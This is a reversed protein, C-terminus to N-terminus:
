LLWSTMVGGRVSTLSIVFTCKGPQELKELMGIQDMVFNM